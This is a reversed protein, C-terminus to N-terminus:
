ECRGRPCTSGVPCASSSQCFFTCRRTTTTASSLCSLAPDCDSDTQCAMHFSPPAPPRILVADLDTQEVRLQDEWCSPCSGPWGEFPAGDFATREFEVEDGPGRARLFWKMPRGDFHYVLRAPNRSPPDCTWQPKEIAPGSQWVCTVEAKGGQSLSLELTVTQEANPSLEPLDLELDPKCDECNCATFLRAAALAFIVAGSRGSWRFWRVASLM